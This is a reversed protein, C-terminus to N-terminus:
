FSMFYCTLTKCKILVESSDKTFLDKFKEPLGPDDLTLSSRGRLFSPTRRIELSSTEATTSHSSNSELHFYFLDFQTYESEDGSIRNSVWEYGDYSSRGIVSLRRFPLCTLFFTFSVIQFAM